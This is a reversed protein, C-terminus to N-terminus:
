QIQGEGLEIVIPDVNKKMKELERLLVADKRTESFQINKYGYYLGDPDVLSGKDDVIIIPITTNDVTIKQLLLLNTNESASAILKTAEALLEAKKREEEAMNSTIWHTYFLSGLGIVIAAILLLIKWRRKKLYFDM